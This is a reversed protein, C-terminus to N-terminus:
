CPCTWTVRGGLAPADDSMYPFARNQIGGKERELNIANKPKQSNGASRLFGVLGDMENRAVETVGKWYLRALGTSSIWPHPNSPHTRFHEEAWRHVM